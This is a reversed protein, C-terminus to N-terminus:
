SGGLRGRIFAVLEQNRAAWRDDPDTNTLAVLREELEVSPGEDVLLLAIAVEQRVSVPSLDPLPQRVHALLVAPDLLPLFAELSSRLTKTFEAEATMDGPDFAWLGPIDTPPNPQDLRGNWLGGRMRTGSSNRNLFDEYVGPEVHFDVLFEAENVGMKFARAQVSAWAGSPDELWFTRGKRRFGLEVLVPAM